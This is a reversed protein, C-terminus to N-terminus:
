TFTIVTMFNVAIAGDADEKQRCSAPAEGGTLAVKTGTMDTPEMVDLVATSVVVAKDQLEDGRGVVVSFDGERDSVLKEKGAYVSTAGYQAYLVKVEVTVEQDGVTPYVVTKTPM